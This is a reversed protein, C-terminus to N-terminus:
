TKFVAINSQDGTLDVYKETLDISATRKWTTIASLSHAGYSVRSATMTEMPSVKAKPMTSTSAQLDLKFPAIAKANCAWIQEFEIELLLRMLAESGIGRVHQM